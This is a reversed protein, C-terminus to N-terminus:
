FFFAITYLYLDLEQMSTTYYPPAGNCTATYVTPSLRLCSVETCDDISFIKGCFSVEKFSIAYIYISVLISNDLIKHKPSIEPSFFHSLKKKIRSFTFMSLMFSSNLLRM